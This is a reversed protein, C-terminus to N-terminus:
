IAGGHAHPRQWQGAGFLWVGSRRPARARVTSWRLVGSQRCGPENLARVIGSADHPLRVENTQSRPGTIRGSAATASRGDSLLGAPSEPRHTRSDSRSRRSTPPGASLPRRDTQIDSANRKTENRKREGCMKCREFVRDPRCVSFHNRRCSFTQDSTRGVCALQRRRCVRSRISRKSFKLSSPSM